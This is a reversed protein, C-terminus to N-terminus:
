DYLVSYIHELISFQLIKILFSAQIENLFPFLNHINPHISPSSKTSFLCHIPVPLILQLLILSSLVPLPLQIHTPADRPHVLSRPCHFGPFRQTYDQGFSRAVPCLSGSSVIDQLQPHSGLSSSPFWGLWFFGAIHGAQLIHLPLFYHILIQSFVWHSALRSVWSM